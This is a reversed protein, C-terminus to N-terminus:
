ICSSPARLSSNIRRSNGNDCQRVQKAASSLVRRCQSFHRTAVQLPGGTVKGKARYIPCISSHITVPVQAKVKADEDGM